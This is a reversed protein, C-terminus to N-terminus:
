GRDRNWYHIIEAIFQSRILKVGNVTESSMPPRTIDEKIFLFGMEAEVPKM